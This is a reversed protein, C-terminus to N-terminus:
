NTDKWIRICIVIYIYALVIYIYMCVLFVRHPLPCLQKGEIAKLFYQIPRNIDTPNSSPGDRSYNVGLHYYLLPHTCGRKEVGELYDYASASSQLSLLGMLLYSDPEGTELAEEVLKTITPTEPRTHDHQDILADFAAKLARENKGVPKVQKKIPTVNSKVSTIGHGKVQLGPGSGPKKSM